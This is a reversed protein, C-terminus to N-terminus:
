MDHPKSVRKYLSQIESDSMGSFIERANHLETRSMSLGPSGISKPLTGHLHGKNDPARKARQTALYAERPTLGLERLEAFRTPNDLEAISGLSRAEYFEKKLSQLDAEALAAYDADSRASDAETGDNGYAADASRADTPEDETLAAGGEETGYDAGYGDAYEESYGKALNSVYEEGDEAVSDAEAGEYEGEHAAAGALNTATDKTSGRAAGLEGSAGFEGYEATPTQEVSQEQNPTPAQEAGSSHTGNNLESM